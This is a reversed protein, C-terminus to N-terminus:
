TRSRARHDARPRSRGRCRYARRAYSSTATRTAAFRRRRRARSPLEADPERCRAARSARSARLGARRRAVVGPKRSARVRAHRRSRRLRAAKRAQDRSGLLGRRRRARCRRTARPRTTGDLRRGVHGARRARARSRNRRSASRPRGCRRAVRQDRGWLEGSRCRDDKPEVRLDSRGRPEGRSETAREGDRPDRSTATVLLRGNRCWGCGTSRDARRRAANGSDRRRRGGQRRRRTAPCASRRDGRALVDVHEGHDEVREVPVVADAGDPVTGGTAIGAATGPPLSGPPPAVLRSATPSRSRARSDGGRSRRVRGHGLESVATPRRCRRGARAPCTRARRRDARERGSPPRSRELVHELAEDITLLESM